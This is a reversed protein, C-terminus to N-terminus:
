ELPTLAAAILPPEHADILVDIRQARERWVDELAANALARSLCVRAKVKLM